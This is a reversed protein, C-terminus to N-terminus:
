VGPLPFIAVVDIYTPPSEEYHKFKVCGAFLLLSNKKHKQETGLFLKM